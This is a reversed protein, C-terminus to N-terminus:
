KRKLIKNCKRLISDVEFFGRSASGAAQHDSSFRACHRGPMILFKCEWIKWHRELTLEATQKSHSGYGTPVDSCDLILRWFSASPAFWTSWRRQLSRKQLNFKRRVISPTEFKFNNAIYKRSFKQKAKNTVWSKKHAYYRLSHFQNM